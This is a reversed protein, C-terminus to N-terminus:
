EHSEVKPYEVKNKWRKHTWLWIEPQRCITEELMTIYTDTIEFPKCENPKDSILRPTLLYHGRSLKEMDWYIAVMDLKRAITETGTIVATPRNLFKVVHSTDNHSPKQDSMFGTISVKGDRRLKLLDRFVMRKDFSYSGFRSRLKLFYADFWKNTLQRYVQAFVVKDSPRNRLWLTISTGWEWNGCHSFYVALSRGQDAYKDFLETDAIIMRKKMEEDTIHGLKITEVFYDTFNRFFKRCIDRCEKDSKEPFSGRINDYAVKRRYRVVYYIIIYLVDSIGYLMWFPLHAIGHLLWGLPIYAIDKKM